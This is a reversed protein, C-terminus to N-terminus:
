LGTNMFGLGLAKIKQNKDGIPLNWRTELFTLLHIGRNLIANADWESYNTIENESYCGYKYGTMKNDDGLKETFSKNGLSSNRPSSLPLLNGLSNRLLRKQTPTFKSFRDNWYSDKAKQPYIHEITEYDEDYVETSFEKWNVKDRSAKVKLKLSLEYEYLFYKITNWGYYGHGNKVWDNLVESLPTEKLIENAINELLTTVQEATMEGTAYKLYPELGYSRTHRFLTSTRMGFSQCFVLRELMTLLKIRKAVNSERLYIALLMPSPSHGLLRGIRELQIKEADTFESDSPTSLKFYLEVSKKLHQSFEGIFERTLKPLEDILPENVNIRKPTFLRDLLFRSFEEMTAVYRRFSKENDEETTLQLKVLNNIYFYSLHTELFKDDKLPRQDNKGLYHYASKWADNIKRRLTDERGSSAKLKTSLYILRNKLLELTSLPKGRNNMTEFTVFVDIDDSIEYVNFVLQQTVKTYLEELEIENLKSIEECFFM